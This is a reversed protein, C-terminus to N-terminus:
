WYGQRHAPPAAACRRWGRSLSVKFPRMKCSLVMTGCLALRVTLGKCLAPSSAAAVGQRSKVKRGKNSLLKFFPIIYQTLRNPGSPLSLQNTGTGNKVLSHNHHFGPRTKEPLRPSAPPLRPYPELRQQCSNGSKLRLCTDIQNSFTFLQM